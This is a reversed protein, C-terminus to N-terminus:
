PPPSSSPRRGGGDRHPRVRRDLVADREGAREHKDGLAVAQADRDRVREVRRVAERDVAEDVGARDRRTRRLREVEDGRRGPRVEVLVRDARREVAQEAQVARQHRHGGVARARRVGAPRDEGALPDPDDLVDVRRPALARGEARRGREVLDDGVVEEDVPAGPDLRDVVLRDRDVALFSPSGASTRIRLAPTAVCAICKWPLWRSTRQWLAFRAGCAMRLSVIM